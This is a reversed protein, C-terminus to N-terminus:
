QLGARVVTAIWVSRLGSASHWWTDHLVALQRAPWPYMPELSVLWALVRTDPVPNWAGWFASDQVAHIDISHGLGHLWQAVALHRNECASRFARERHMHVNVGGLGYVWAAVELHGSECARAFAPSVSIHMHPSRLGHMWTAVELLGNGCVQTFTEWGAAIQAGLGWLWKAVHLHGITCADHLAESKRGDVIDPGPSLSALWSAIELHGNKCAESFMDCLLFYGVDGVDFLWAAIDLKGQRCALRFPWSVNECDEPDEM